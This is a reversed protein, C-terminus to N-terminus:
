WLTDQGKEREWVIRLSFYTRLSQIKDKMLEFISLQNLIFDSIITQLATRTSNLVFCFVLFFM